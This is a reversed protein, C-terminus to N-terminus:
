CVSFTLHLGSMKKNGPSLAAQFVDLTMGSPAFSSRVVGGLEFWKFLVLSIIM